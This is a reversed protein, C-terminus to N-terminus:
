KLEEDNVPLMNFVVRETTPNQEILTKILSEYLERFEVATKSAVDNIGAM